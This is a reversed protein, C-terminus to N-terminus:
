KRSSDNVPAVWNEVALGPYGTFDQENDTVLTAGLSIAHAAILRDLANRQRDPVAARLIGYSVAAEIDFPAVALDELLAILAADDAGRDLSKEVGVRLEALTISSVGADGVHLSAFRADLKRSSNRMLYICINTDLMFRM